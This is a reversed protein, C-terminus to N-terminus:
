GRRGKAVARRHRRHRHKHTHKRHKGHAGSFHVPPNGTSPVLTGPAPDDPPPPLPQCADGECPIVTPPEPFGGGERADYLDVSGLPDAPVLSFGTLFYVDAGGANADIFQAGDASRGNSILRLCGGAKVCSGTGQAEWEYVDRDNNTDQLALSDGTNFFVRRGSASLARPKYTRTAGEGEGNAVAGPITSPGAPRENTPNCSACFLSGAGGGAAADYLYVESDPKGTTADHNDYGLLEASSLFALHTGDASVRATGTSPPVNSLDGAPAVETVAGNRDLFLGSATLYYVYSGDASAGLM